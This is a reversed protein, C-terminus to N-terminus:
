RRAARAAQRPAPTAVVGQTAYYAIVSLTPITPWIVSMFYLYRKGDVYSVPQGTETQGTFAM